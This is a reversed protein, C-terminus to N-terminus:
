FCSGLQGLYLASLDSKLQPLLEIIVLKPYIVGYVGRGFRGYCEGYVGRGFRGYCTDCMKTEFTNGTYDLVQKLYLQVTRCQM